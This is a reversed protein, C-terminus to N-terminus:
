AARDLPDEAADIPEDAVHQPRPATRLPRGREETQADAPTLMATGDIVTTALMNIAHRLRRSGAPSGDGRRATVIARAISVRELTRRLASGDRGDFIRSRAIWALDQLGAIARRIEPALEAREEVLGELESFTNRIVGLPHDTPVPSAPTAQPDTTSQTGRM